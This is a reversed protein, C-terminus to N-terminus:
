EIKRYYWQRPSLPLSGEPTVLFNDSLLYARNGKLLTSPHFSLVMNPKLIADPSSWSSPGDNGDLGISHCNPTHAGIVEFGEEQWMQSAVAHMSGIKTGAKMAAACSMIVKEHVRLQREQKQPLDKFSFLLSMEYWYGYPGPYVMEFVFIDDESFRRDLPTPITEPSLNFSFKTRGQFGGESKVVQEAAAAAEWCRVGPRAIHSFREMAETLVCGTRYIEEIEFSSKVSRLNDFEVSFDVVEREGVALENQVRQWASYKWHNEPHVVGIKKNNQSLDSVIELARGLADSKPCEVWSTAAAQRNWEAEYSSELVLAAESEECGVVVWAAGAWLHLNTLYRAVGMMGPAGQAPLLLVGIGRARMISQVNLIRRRIDQQLAFSSLM